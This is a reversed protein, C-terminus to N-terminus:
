QVFNDLAREERLWRDYFVGLHLVPGFVLDKKLEDLEGDGLGLGDQRDEVPLWVRQNGRPGTAWELAPRRDVRLAKALRSYLGSGCIGAVRLRVGQNVGPLRCLPGEKPRRAKWEQWQREKGTGHVNRIYEAMLAGALPQETWTRDAVERWFVEQLEAVRPSPKLRPNKRNNPNAGSPVFDIKGSNILPSLRFSRWGPPVSIWHLRSPSEPLVDVSGEVKDFYWCERKWLGCWRIAPISVRIGLGRRISRGSTVIQKKFWRLFITEAIIKAEGSFGRTFSRCSGALSGWDEFQKVFCSVRTVPVLRPPRGTRSWFFTSNLSFFDRSVITKGRSLVLGVSSVFDAWREYDEVGSRFVIDDGNIRVPVEPGFIWRFACYNQLCLLPFCMLNGMFQGESELPESMDPYQIKCRLFERAASWVGAPVRKSMSQLTDIIVDAVEVPLNDSASEYDGSVFVEGEKRVFPRFRGPKAEGRLLWPRESLTDYMVRHLPGLLGMDTSAVTVGRAKGATNVVAYRVLNDVEGGDGKLV